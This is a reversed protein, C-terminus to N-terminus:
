PWPGGCRRSHGPALGPPPWQDTPTPGTLAGPVGWGDPVIDPDSLRPHDPQGPFVRWCQWGAGFGGFGGWECHTHMTAFRGNPLPTPEFGFDCYGGGAGIVNVGMGVGPCLFPQLLPIPPVNMNPGGGGAGANPSIPSAPLTAIGIGGGINPEPIVVIPDADADPSNWMMCSITLIGVILKQM